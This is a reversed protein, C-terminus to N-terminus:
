NGRGTNMKWCDHTPTPRSENLLRRQSNRRQALAMEPLLQLVTITNYLAEHCEGGFFYSATIHECLTSIWFM